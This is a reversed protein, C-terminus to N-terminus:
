NQTGDDHSVPKAEKPTSLLFIDLPAYVALRYSYASYEDIFHVRFEAQFKAGGELPFDRSAGIEVYTRDDRVFDHIQDITTSDPSSYSAYNADGEQTYFDRARWGIGFLSLRDDPAVEMKLYGGGGYQTGSTSDGMLLGSMIGFADFRTSGLLGPIKWRFGLAPVWNNVIGGTAYLQGGDHFGHLEEEFLFNDDIPEKWVGGYDMQEPEFPTNLQHWNLFLDCKFAPDDEIWQIGYEVPRVFELLTVELPELLGHRDHTELTGMILRTGGERYEFSLIPKVDVFPNVDSMSRFDGFIGASLFARQGLAAQFRSQGQQGLLTEGTRFPEFFETNDGYFTFSNIWTIDAARASCALAAGCALGLFISIKSRIM